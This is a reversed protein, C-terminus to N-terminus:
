RHVNQGYKLQAGKIPFLYFGKKVSGILPNGRVSAAVSGGM